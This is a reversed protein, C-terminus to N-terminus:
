IIFFLLFDVKEMLFDLFIINSFDSVYQYVQSDKSVFNFRCTDTNKVYLNLAKNLLKFDVKEDIYVYGGINNIASGSYFMETNWINKQQETLPLLNKM